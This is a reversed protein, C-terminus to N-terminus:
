HCVTHTDPTLSLQTQLTATQNDLLRRTNVGPLWAVYRETPLRYMQEDSQQRFLATPTTTAGPIGTPTNGYDYTTTAPPYVSKDVPAYVQATPPYVSKDRPVYVSSPDFAHTPNVNQPQPQVGIGPQISIAPPVSADTNDTNTTYDIAPAPVQQDAPYHYRSRSPYTDAATRPQDYSATSQPIIELPPPDYGQETPTTRQLPYASRHLAALSPDTEGGDAVVRVDSMGEILLDIQSDTSAVNIMVSSAAPVENTASAKATIDDFINADIEHGTAAVKFYDSLGTNGGSSDSLAISDLSKNSNAEQKILRLRDPAHQIPKMAEEIEDIVDSSNSVPSDKRELTFVVDDAGSSGPHDDNTLVRM